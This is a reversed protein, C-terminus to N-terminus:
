GGGFTRKLPDTPLSRAVRGDVSYTGDRQRAFSSGHLKVTGVGGAFLYVGSGRVVVRYYGGIASFRFGSGNFELGKRGNWRVITPTINPTAQPAGVGPTPLQYIDIRAEHGQSVRGLVFGNVVLTVIPHGAVGPGDGAAHRVVLYGPKAQAKERAFAMAPLALAALLALCLLIRKM